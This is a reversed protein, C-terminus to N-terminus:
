LAASNLYKFHLLKLPNPYIFAEIEFDLDGISFSLWQPDKIAHPGGYDCVAINSASFYNTLEVYIEKSLLASRTGSM